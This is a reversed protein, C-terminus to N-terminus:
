ATAHNLGSTQRLAVGMMIGFAVHGALMATVAPLRSLIVPAPLGAARPRPHFRPLVRLFATSGAGHALGLMGGVAGSPRRHLLRFGRRYLLGFFGANLIHLALGAKRMGKGEDVVAAGLIRLFDVPFWGRRHAALNALTLPLIAAVGVGASFVKDEVDRMM